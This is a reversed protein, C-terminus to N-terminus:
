RKVRKMMLPKGQNKFRTPSVPQSHDFADRIIAPLLLLHDIKLQDGGIAM